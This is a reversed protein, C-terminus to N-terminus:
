ILAEIHEIAAGITKCALAEDENLEIDFEAEFAAILEMSKLSEAGLDQVFRADVTMLAPDVHLVSNVVKRVREAVSNM